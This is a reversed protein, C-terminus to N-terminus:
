IDDVVVTGQIANLPQLVIGRYPEEEVGVGCGGGRFFILIHPDDGCSRIFTCVNALQKGYGWALAELNSIGYKASGLYTDLGHIQVNFKRM